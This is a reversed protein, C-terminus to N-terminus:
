LRKLKKFRIVTVKKGTKKKYAKIVRKAERKNRCYRSNNITISKSKGKILLYGM